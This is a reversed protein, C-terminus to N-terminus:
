SRSTAHSSEGCVWHPVKRTGISQDFGDPGVMASETAAPWGLVRLLTDACQQEVRSPRAVTRRFVNSTGLRKECRAQDLSEIEHAHIRPADLVAGLNRASCRHDREFGRQKGFVLLFEPLQPLVIPFNAEIAEVFSALEDPVHVCDTDSAIM